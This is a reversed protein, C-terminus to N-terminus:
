SRTAYDVFLVKISGRRTNRMNRELFMNGFPFKLPRSTWPPKQGPILSLVMRSSLEPSELLLDHFDRQVRLKEISYAAYQRLWDLLPDDHLFKRFALRLASIVALQSDLDNPKDIETICATVRDFALSRLAPILYITSFIYVRMHAPLPHNAPTSEPPPKAGLAALVSTVAPYDGTYAWEIFRALTGESTDQFNYVGKLDEQFGREFAAIITRSKSALLDRHIHFPRDSQTAQLSVTPSHLFNIYSPSHKEAM